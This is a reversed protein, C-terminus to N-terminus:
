SQSNNGCIKKMLKTRKLKKKKKKLLKNNEAVERLKKAKNKSGRKLMRRKLIM